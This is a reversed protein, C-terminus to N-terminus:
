FRFRYRFRVDKTPQMTGFGFRKRDIDPIAQDPTELEFEFYALMLFIFLKLENTAFFRGPCMSVGAGWPMNYYKVKKGDKYFDTKKSGDPNLFRDYKFSHPDPHVEPDLQVASYPFIAVRDDKRVWYEQGDAVKFTMNKVVARILVPAATLRLTEEVASDLVPTKMLMDRTLNILPGDRRAEQGTEKLVKDVEEKVAAMAEPNKMLFLLLWFSSPGTNGQSAWLLVFMYRSIMSDKMGKERRGQQNDWVWGGVNDKERIKQVALADWFYSKLKEAEMKTRPPLVSYALEPFFQDYKRFEHYLVESEVRDKEKAKDVTGEPTHPENGFLSLYGARFVINYCYMFLGDEKWSSQDTASGINHLMLNQLNTMMAQTMVELGDGKLHKHSSTELIKKDGDESKYGFVRKILIKAFSNLDLKERSEKVFPGFLLPDQLFTIYHGGLQVTFINGHKIRMRELFKCTDRRFELVHGLWPILGKDLPPEGPQRQRFAGLLYLGGILAALLSLLILLLLGM